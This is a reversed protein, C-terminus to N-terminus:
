LSSCCLTSTYENGMDNSAAFSCIAINYGTHSVPSVFDIKNASMSPPCHQHQPMGEHEEPETMHPKEEKKGKLETTGEEKQNLFSQQCM